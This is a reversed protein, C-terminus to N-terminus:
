TQNISVTIGHCPADEHWGHEVINYKHHSDQNLTQKVKSVPSQIEQQYTGTSKTAESLIKLMQAISPIDMKHLLEFFAKTEPTATETIYTHEKGAKQVKKTTYPQENSIQFNKGKLIGKIQFIKNLKVSKNTDLSIVDIEINNQTELINEIIKNHTEIDSYSIGNESVFHDFTNPELNTSFNRIDDRVFIIGNFSQDTIFEKYGQEDVIVFPINNAKAVMAACALSQIANDVSVVKTILDPNANKRELYLMSATIGAGSGLDGIKVNDQDKYKTAIKESTRQAYKVSESVLAKFLIPIIGQEASEAEVTQEVKNEIMNLQEEKSVNDSPLKWVKTSNNNKKFRYDILTIVNTLNEKILSYAQPSLYFYRRSEGNERLKQYDPRPVPNYKELFKRQEEKLQQWLIRHDNLDVETIVLNKGTSKENEEMNGNDISNNNFHEDQQPIDETTHEINEVFPSSGELPSTPEKGQDTESYDTKM